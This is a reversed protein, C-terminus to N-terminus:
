AIGDWSRGDGPQGSNLGLLVVEIGDTRECVMRFGPLRVGAAVGGV